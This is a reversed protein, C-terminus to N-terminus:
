LKTAKMQCTIEGRMFYRVSLRTFSFALRKLDTNRLYTLGVQVQSDNHIMYIYM